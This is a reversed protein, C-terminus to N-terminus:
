HKRTFVGLLLAVIIVISIMLLISESSEPMAFGFQIGPVKLTPIIFMSDIVWYITGGLIAVGFAKRKAFDFLQATAIVLAVFVWLRCVLYIGLPWRFTGLFPENSFILPLFMEFSMPVYAFAVAGAVKNYDSLAGMLKAGIWYIVLSLLLWRVVAIGILEAATLIPTQSWIVQGELLISSATALVKGGEQAREIFDLNYTYLGNGIGQLIGVFVVTFAAARLITADDRIMAFLKSDLLVGRLIKGLFTEKFPKPWEMGSIGGIFGLITGLYFGGGIPISLLSFIAIVPSYTRHRRPKMYILFTCLLMAVPLILWLAALPDKVLGPIGFAVRGWFVQVKRLEEVSTVPFSSLIIPSANMTTWIGNIIALVSGLLVLIITPSFRKEPM